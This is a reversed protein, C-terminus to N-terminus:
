RIVEVEIQLPISKWIRDTTYVRAKREIALALCARDGLSLGYPRTISSLMGASRASREDFPVSICGLTAIERWARQEDRGIRILRTHVEATNVASVLAGSHLKTLRNAGSEGLLIAMIASADLVSEAM